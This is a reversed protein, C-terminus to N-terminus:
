HPNSHRANNPKYTKPTPTAGLNPFILRRTLRKSVQYCAAIGYGLLFVNPIMLVYASFVENLGMVGRLAFIGGVGDIAGLPLTMIVVLSECYDSLPGRRLLILVSLAWILALAVSIRGGLTIPSTM